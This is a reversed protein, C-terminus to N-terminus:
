RGATRGTVDCSAGCSQGCGQKTHSSACQPSRIKRCDQKFKQTLVLGNMFLEGRAEAEMLHKMMKISHVRDETPIVWKGAGPLRNAPDEWVPSIGTKFLWMTGRSPMKHIGETYREAFQEWDICSGLKVIDSEYENREMGSCKQIREGWKPGDVYHVRWDHTPDFINNTVFCAIAATQPSKQPSQSPSAPKSKKKSKVLKFAEVTPPSCKPSLSPTLTMSNVHQIDVPSPRLPCSKPCTKPAPPVFRTKELEEEVEDDSDDPWEDILAQPEHTTSSATLNHQSVFVSRGISRNAVLNGRNALIMSCQNGRNPFIISSKANRSTFPTATAANNPSVRIGRAFVMSSTSGMYKARPRMQQQWISCRVSAFNAGVETTKPKVTEQSPAEPPEPANRTRKTNKPMRSSQPPQSLLHLPYDRPEERGM